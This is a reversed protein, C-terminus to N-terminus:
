TKVCTEASASLGARRAAERGDHQERLHVSLTIFQGGVFTALKDCQADV